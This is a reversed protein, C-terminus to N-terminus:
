KDDAMFFILGLYNKQSSIGMKPPKGHDFFVVQPYHVLQYRKVITQLHGQVLEVETRVAM